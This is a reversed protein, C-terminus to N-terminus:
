VKKTCFWWDYCDAGIRKKREMADKYNSPPPIIVKDGLFDNTPWNEPTSVHNADSFQLAKLSRLIESVSRGVEQPYYIMLRIKGNPDIIFVSRVTNTARAPHIMGLRNAVKGVDDAILPFPVQVHLNEEIWEVWKLHSFVQDVSLGVLQTNIEEFEKARKAFAVFETTCVPTFDAPHSFLLIWKGKFDSPLKVMGLTTKVEMEPLVEGILPIKGFMESQVENADAM